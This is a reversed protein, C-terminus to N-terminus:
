ATIGCRPCSDRIPIKDDIVRRIRIVISRETQSGIRQSQPHTVSLEVTDFDVVFRGARQEALEGHRIGASERVVPNAVDPDGM